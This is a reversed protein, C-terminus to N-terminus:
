RKVLASPDTAESDPARGTCPTPALPPPAGRRSTLRGGRGECKQAGGRLAAWSRLSCTTPRSARRKLLPHPLHQLHPISGRAAAKSRYTSHSLSRHKRQTDHRTATKRTHAPPSTFRQRGPARSCRGNLTRVRACLRLESSRWPSASKVGQRLMGRRGPQQYAKTDERTHDRRKRPHRRKRPVTTLSVSQRM